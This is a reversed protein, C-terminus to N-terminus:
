RRRLSPFIGSDELFGEMPELPEAGERLLGRPVYDVFYSSLISGYYFAWILIFSVHMYVPIKPLIKLDDM